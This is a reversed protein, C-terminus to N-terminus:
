YNKTILPIHLTRYNEIIFLAEFMPAHNMIFKKLMWAYATRYDRNNLREYAMVYVEERVLNLKDEYSLNHYKDFMNKEWKINWFIHSIKLTYLDNATIIDYPYNEFVPNIHIKSYEGFIQQFIKELPCVEVGDIIIIESLDKM